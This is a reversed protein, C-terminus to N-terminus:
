NFEFIIPMHDSLAIWEEVAGIELRASELIEKRQAVLWVDMGRRALGCAIAKGIGSSGGTVLAVKGNELKAKIKM